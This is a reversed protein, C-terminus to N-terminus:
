WGEQAEWEKSRRSPSLSFSLFLLSTRKIVEKGMGGKRWMGESGEGIKRM